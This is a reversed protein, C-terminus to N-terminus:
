WTFKNPKKVMELFVFDFRFVPFDGAQQINRLSVLTALPRSTRLSPTTLLGLRIM